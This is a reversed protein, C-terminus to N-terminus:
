PGECKLSHAEISLLAIHKSSQQFKLNKCDISVEGPSKGNKKCPHFNTGLCYILKTSNATAWGVCVKDSKNITEKGKGLGLLM